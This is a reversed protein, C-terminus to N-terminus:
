ASSRTRPAPRGPLAPDARLPHSLRARRAHLRVRGRRRRHGLGQAAAYMEMTIATCSSLSAALLEQPSPGADDGGTEQPEDVTIHHDRIRVTHKFAGKRQAIARMHVPM